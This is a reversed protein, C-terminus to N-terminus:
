KSSTKAFPLLTTTKSSRVWRRQNLWRSQCRGGYRNRRETAGLTATMQARGREAGTRDAFVAIRLLNKRRDGVSWPM